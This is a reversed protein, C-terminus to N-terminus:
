APSKEALKELQVLIGTFKAYLSKTFPKLNAEAVLYLVELYDERAKLDQFVAEEVKLGNYTSKVACAMLKAHLDKSALAACFVSKLVDPMEEGGRITISLGREAFSQLLAWAEGIDAANIKVEAGSALKM